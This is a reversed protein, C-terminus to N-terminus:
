VGAEEFRAWTVSVLKRLAELPFQERHVALRGLTALLHAGVDRRELGLIEAHIQLENSLARSSMGVSAAWRVLDYFGFGNMNAGYWDIIVITSEGCTRGRADVNWHVNGRWLDNHDMISQPQWRGSHLRRIAIEAVHQQGLSFVDSKTVTNLIEGYREGVEDSRGGAAAIRVIQRLWNRISRRINSRSMRWAWGRLEMPRRWPWIVYTRGDIEGGCLPEIVSDRLEAGLIQRAAVASNMGRSVMTPASADSVQAVGIPVGDADLFSYSAVADSVMCPKSIHRITAVTGPLGATKNLPGAHRKELKKCVFSIEATALMNSHANAPDNGAPSVM